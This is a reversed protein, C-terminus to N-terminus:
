RGAAKREQHWRRVTTLSLSRGVITSWGVHSWSSSIVNPDTTLGSYWRAALSLSDTIKGRESKAHFMPRRGARKHGSTASVPPAPRGYAHRSNTGSDCRVRRQLFGSEFKRDGQRNPREAGRFDRAFEPATRTPVARSVTLKCGPDSALLGISSASIAFATCNSSRM